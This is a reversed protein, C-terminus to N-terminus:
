KECDPGAESNDPTAPLEKWNPSVDIRKGGCRACIMRPRFWSLQIEDAYDDSRFTIAHSCAPKLCQVNLEHVGLRRMNGLTILPDIPPRPRPMTGLGLKAVTAARKRETEELTEVSLAM